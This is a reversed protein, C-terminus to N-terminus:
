SGGRLGALFRKASFFAVAGVLLSTATSPVPGLIARVPSEVLWGALSAILMALLTSM